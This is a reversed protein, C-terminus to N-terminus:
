GPGPHQGADARVRVHRTVKEAAIDRAAQAADFEGAIVSAGGAQQVALMLGLGAVHFLPLVGLSVDREDLRWAEVLSSQATLMGAQSLLAGRPRGGVAATHIIVFGADADVPIRLIAM